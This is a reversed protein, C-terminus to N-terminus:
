IWVRVTVKANILTQKAGEVVDDLWKTLIVDGPFESTYKDLVLVLAVVPPGHETFHIPGKDQQGLRVELEHNIAGVTSGTMEVWDPDLKFKKFDFKSPFESLADVIPFSAPLEELHLCLKSLHMERTETSM